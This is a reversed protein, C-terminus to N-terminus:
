AGDVAINALALIFFPYLFRFNDVPTDFEEPLVGPFEYSHLRKEIPGSQRDWAHLNWVSMQCKIAQCVPFSAWSLM